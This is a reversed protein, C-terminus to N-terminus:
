PHFHYFDPLHKNTEYSQIRPNTIKNTTLFLSAFTFIWSHGYFLGDKVTFYLSYSSSSFHIGAPRKVSATHSKIERECVSGGMKVTGSVQQSGWFSRHMFEVIRYKTDVIGCLM